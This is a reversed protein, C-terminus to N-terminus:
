KNDPHYELLQGPKVGLVECVRALTSLDVRKSTGQWLQHCVAYNIRTEKALRYPNTIGKREAAKRIALRITAM